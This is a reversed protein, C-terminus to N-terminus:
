FQRLNDLLQMYQERTVFMNEKPRTCPLMLNLLEDPNEENGEQANKNEGGKGDTALRMGEIDDDISNKHMDCLMSREQKTSPDPSHQLDLIHGVEHTLAAVEAVRPKSGDPRTLSIGVVPSSFVGEDTWLFESGLDWNAVGLREIWEYPMYVVLIDFDGSFTDVTGPGSGSGSTSFAHHAAVLLETRIDDFSRPDSALLEEIFGANGDPYYDGGKRRAVEASIREDDDLSFYLDAQPSLTASRVPFLQEIYDEAAEAAAHGEARMDVSLGGPGEEAWPGIRAFTYGVKLDRQLPDWELSEEGFFVMTPGCERVPEVELKLAEVKEYDPRWGFFNVTNEAKRKEEESYFDPRKIPVDRKEPVLLPGDPRDADRVRLHARFDTVQWGDAVTEDPRWKVHSRIVAPKRDVLPTDIVVQFANTELGERAELYSPLGQMPEDDHLNVVTDFSWVQDVPLRHGDAGRVGEAGGPLTVRYRVGDKLDEMPIVRLTSPGDLALRTPTEAMATRGQGDPLATEIRAAGPLLSAPDLPRNFKVQIGPVEWSINRAHREPRHELVELGMKSDSGSVPAQAVELPTITYGGERMNPASFRGSLSLPKEGRNSNKREVSQKEANWVRDYQDVHATGELSFSGIVHSETIREITVTGTLEGGRVQTRTGTQATGQFDCDMEQVERGEYIHDPILSSKLMGLFASQAMRCLRREEEQMRAQKPTNPASYPDPFTRGSWASYIDGPQGKGTAGTARAEYVGGEQLDGPATEPLTIRLFAGSNPLWGGVGGHRLSLVDGLRGAEFAIINPSFVEFVAQRRGGSAVPVEQDMKDELFSAMGESLGPVGDNGGVRRAGLHRACAVGGASVAGSITLSAQGPALAANAGGQFAEPNLNGLTDGTHRPDIAAMMAEISCSPQQLPRTPECLDQAMLVGAPFLTFLLVLVRLPIM